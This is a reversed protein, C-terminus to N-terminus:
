ATMRQQAAPPHLFEITIGDERIDIRLLTEDYDADGKWKLRFDNGVKAQEIAYLVMQKIPEYHQQPWTQGTHTVQIVRNTSRFRSFKEGLGVLLEEYSQGAQFRAAIDDGHQRLVRPDTLFNLLDIAQICGGDGM